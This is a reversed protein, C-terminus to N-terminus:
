SCVCSMRWPLSAKAPSMSSNATNESSCISAMPRSIRHSHLKTRLYAIADRIKPLRINKHERRLASLVHAEVLNVFSLRLRKPDAPEIIPRFQRDGKATSYMRGAVWSRLTAAPVGLYYAAEALSYAPVERPDPRVSSSGQKM